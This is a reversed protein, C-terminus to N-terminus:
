CDTITRGIGRDGAHLTNKIKHILHLVSGLQRPIPPNRAGFRQRTFPTFRTALVSSCGYFSPEGRTYNLPLVFAEWAKSTPEIGM